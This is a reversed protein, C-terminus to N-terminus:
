LVSIFTFLLDRAVFRGVVKGCLCDFDMRTTSICAVVRWDGFENEDAASRCNAINEEEDEETKLKINNLKNLL